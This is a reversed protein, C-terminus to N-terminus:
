LCHFSVINNYYSYSKVVYKILCICLQCVEEESEKNEKQEMEKATNPDSQQRSYQQGIQKEVKVVDDQTCMQWSYKEV